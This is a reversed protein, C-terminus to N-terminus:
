NLKQIEVKNRFGNLLSSDGTVLYRRYAYALADSLWLIREDEPSKMRVRNYGALRLILLTAKDLKLQGGARKEFIVYSSTAGVSLRTVIEVILKRRSLEGTPDLEDIPSLQFIQLNINPGFHSVFDHFKTLGNKRALIEISHWRKGQFRRHIQTTVSALKKRRVGVVAFVYFTPGGRSRPVHFTEDVFYDFPMGVIILRRLM